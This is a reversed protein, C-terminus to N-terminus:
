FISFIAHVFYHVFNSCTKKFLVFAFYFFSKFTYINYIYLNPFIYLSYKTINLGSSLLNSDGPTPSTQMDANNDSDEFSVSDQVSLLLGGLLMHTNQPDTEVQLANMLINILRPKLQAFTIM